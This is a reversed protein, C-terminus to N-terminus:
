VRNCRTCPMGLAKKGRDLKNCGDVNCVRRIEPEKGVRFWHAEEETRPLQLFDPCDDPCPCDKPWDKLLSPPPMHSKSAFIPFSLTSFMPSDATPPLVQLVVFSPLALSPMFQFVLTRFCAQLKYFCPQYLGRDRFLHEMRPVIVRFRFSILALTKKHSYPDTFVFM